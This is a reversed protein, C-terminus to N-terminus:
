RRCIGESIRCHLEKRHNNQNQWPMAALSNTIIRHAAAVAGLKEVNEPTIASGNVNLIDRFVDEVSKENYTVSADNIVKSLIM